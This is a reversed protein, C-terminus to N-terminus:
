RLRRKLDSWGEMRFGHVSRVCDNFGEIKSLEDIADFVADIEDKESRYVSGQLRIFGASSMADEIEKYVKALRNKAQRELASQDTCEDAMSRIYDKYCNTDMDFAIGYAM